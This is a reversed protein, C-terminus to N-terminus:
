KKVGVGSRPPVWIQLSAPVDRPWSMFMEGEEPSEDQRHQPDCSQVRPVGGAALSGGRCGPVVGFFVLCGLPVGCGRGQTPLLYPLHLLVKKEQHGFLSFPFPRIWNKIVSKPNAGCPPTAGSGPPRAHGMSTCLPCMEGRGM